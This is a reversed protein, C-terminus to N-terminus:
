DIDPYGEVDKVFISLIERRKLKTKTQGLDKRMQLFLEGLSRLRTKDDIKLQSKKKMDIFARVIEDSGYLVTATAFDMYQEQMKNLVKQLQSPNNMSNAIDTYFKMFQKYINDQKVRILNETQFRRTRETKLLVALITAIVGLLPTMILAIVKLIDLTNTSLNAPEM